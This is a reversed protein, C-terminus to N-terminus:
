DNVIHGAWKKTNYSCLPCYRVNVSGAVAWKESCDPCRYRKLEVMHKQSQVLDAAFGITERLVQVFDENTLLVDIHNLVTSVLPDRLGRDTSITTTYTDAIAVPFDDMEWCKEIANIFKQRAQAKLKPVDYKDGVQYVKVNFLMPSVRGRDGGSSDYDFGYMFHIMAEIAIPDDEVLRITAEQTEQEWKLV